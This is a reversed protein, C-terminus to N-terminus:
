YPQWVSTVYRRKYKMGKGVEERTTNGEKENMQQKQPSMNM